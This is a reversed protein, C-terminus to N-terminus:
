YIEKNRGWRKKPTPLFLNFKEPLRNGGEGLRVVFIKILM